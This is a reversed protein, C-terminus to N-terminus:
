SSCKANLRQRDNLNTPHDSVNLHSLCVFSLFILFSAFIECWKLNWIHDPWQSKFFFNNLHGTQILREVIKMM